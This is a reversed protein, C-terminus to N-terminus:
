SPESLERRIMQMRLAIDVMMRNEHGRLDMGSLQEFQTLRYRVTKQHVHLAAATAQLSCYADFYTRLPKALAQKHRRDYEAADNLIAGVPGELNNDHRISLLLGVVGLEDSIAINENSFKTAGLLAIATKRHSTRFDGSRGSVSSVGWM